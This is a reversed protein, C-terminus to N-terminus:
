YKMGPQKKKLEEQIDISGELSGIANNILGTQQELTNLNMQLQEIETQLIQVRKLVEPTLNSASM